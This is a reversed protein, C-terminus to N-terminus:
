PSGDQTGIMGSEILAASHRAPKEASAVSATPAARRIWAGSIVITSPPSARM